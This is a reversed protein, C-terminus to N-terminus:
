ITEWRIMDDSNDGDLAKIAKRIYRMFISAKDELEFTANGVENNDTVDIPFTYLTKDVLVTYYLRGNKCYALKAKNGKVIEIMKHKM